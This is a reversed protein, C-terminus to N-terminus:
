FQVHLSHTLFSSLTLVNELRAKLYPHYVSGVAAGNARPTGDAQSQSEGNVPSSRFFLPSSAVPANQSTDLSDNQPQGQSEGKAGNQLPYSGRSPGRPTSQQSSAM